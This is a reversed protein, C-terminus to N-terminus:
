CSPAHLFPAGRDTLQERGISHRNELSKQNLSTSWSFKRLLKQAERNPGTGGWPPGVRPGSDEADVLTKREVSPENWIDTTLTGCITAVPSIM